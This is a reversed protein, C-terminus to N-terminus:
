GLWVHLAELRHHKRQGPIIAHLDKFVRFIISETGVQLPRVFEGWARLIIYSYALLVTPRKHLMM